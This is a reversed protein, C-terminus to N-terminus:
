CASSSLVTHFDFILFRLLLVHLLCSFIEDRLCLCTSPGTRSAVSGVLTMKILNRRFQGHQNFIIDSGSDNTLKPFTMRTEADGVRTALAQMRSTQERIAALM